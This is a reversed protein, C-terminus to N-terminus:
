RSNRRVAKIIAVIMLDAMLEETIGRQPPHGQLLRECAGDVQANSATTPIGLRRYANAESAAEVGIVSLIQSFRDLLQTIM